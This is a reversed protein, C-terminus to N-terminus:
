YWRFCVWMMWCIMWLMLWVVRLRECAALFTRFRSTFLSAVAFVCFWLCFNCERLWMCFRVCICDWDFVVNVCVVVSVCLFFLIFFVCWFCRFSCCLLSLSVRCRKVLLWDLMCGIWFWRVKMSRMWRLIWVCFVWLCNWCIWNGMLFTISIIITSGRWKSVIWVEMFCCWVVIVWLCWVILMEGLCWWWWCVFWGVEMICVMIGWIIICIWCCLCLIWDGGMMDWMWVWLWVLCWVCLCLWLLWLLLFVSDCWLVCWCNLWCVSVCCM